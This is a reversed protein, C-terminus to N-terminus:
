FLLHADCIGQLLISHHDHQNWIDIPILNILPKGVFRIHTGEIAGCMSEFGILIKFHTMISELGEGQPVCIFYSYNKKQM